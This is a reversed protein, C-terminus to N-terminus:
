GPLQYDSLKGISNSVLLSEDEVLSSRNNYQTFAFEWLGEMSKSGKSSLSNTKYHEKSKGPRRLGSARAGSALCRFPAITSVFREMSKRAISAYHEVHSIDSAFKHTQVNDALLESRFSPIHKREGICIPDVLKGTQKGHKKIEQTLKRPSKQLSNFLDVDADEVKSSGAHTSISPPESMCADTSGSPQVDLSSFCGSAINKSFYVSKVACKQRRKQAHRNQVTYANMTECSGELDVEASIPLVRSKMKSNLFHSVLDEKGAKLSFDPTECQLASPIKLTGNDLPKNLTEVSRSSILNDEMELSLSEVESIRPARFQRKAEVSASLFYNTLLNKQIPLELSRKHQRVSIQANQISLSSTSQDKSEFPMRSIPDVEGKAIAQGLKQSLSPGLFDLCHSLDSTLPTLHVIDECAPDYVWQHHFTIIAKSFADEYSAPVSVGNYKLHKIVKQYSRFRRMLSHARKIGMGQLSPLYDCGTLICMEVIMQKTFSTLNIDVNKALNSYQLEVGQGFKDMKFLVKLCGFPIADSDETIIVDAFGHISLYALQADAEYPAVIYPVREEQLVKILQLAIEPTIDVAKQYFDYAAATNGSKEHELAKELNHKRSRARKIEQEEKMPLRGGDFVLLPRVGHHRLLNVRNMCYDVFKTTPLGQCLDRSCTIAGKHLWSYTDVAAVKGAYEKIHVSTTATKLVPLLGQIGM